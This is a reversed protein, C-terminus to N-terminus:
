SPSAADAPTAAPPEALRNWPMVALLNAMACTGSIGAFMLGAGVFASLAMFWPSVLLALLIGLVILSGATIQVQRMISIPAKRNRNVALGAKEWARLGGHLHYVERFGTRLIQPAADCTRTGSACHFVGIKDHDEPFDTADFGSLPVLRAGPIHERAYEDPERIDILVAQGAELWAKVTGPDAERLETQTM